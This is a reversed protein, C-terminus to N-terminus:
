RSVAAWVRPSSMLASLQSQTLTGKKRMGRMRQLFRFESSQNKRSNVVPGAALAADLRRVAEVIAEPRNWVPGTWGPWNTLSELAAAREPSMDGRAKDARMNILFRYDRGKRGQISGNLLAEQLAAVAAAFKSDDGLDWSWGLPVLMELKALRDPTLIGSRYCERQRACWKGEPTTRPPTRGYERLHAEVARLMREEDTRLIEAVEARIQQESATGGNMIRVFREVGNVTLAELRGRVDPDAVFWHTSNCGNLRSANRRSIAARMEAELAARDQDPINVVGREVLLELAGVDSIEVGVKAHEAALAAILATPTAGTSALTNLRQDIAFQRDPGVAANSREKEGTVQDRVDAPLAFNWPCTFHHGYCLCKLRLALRAIAGTVLPRDDALVGVEFLCLYSRDPSPHGARKARLARGLRQTILQFSGPVSPMFVQACDPWDAGEDMTRIAVVVDIREAKSGLRAYQNGIGKEESALTVGDNSGLNVVVADPYREALRRGLEYAFGKADGIVRGDPLTMRQEPRVTAPVIMLTPLQRASYEGVYAGLIAEVTGFQDDGRADMEDRQTASVAEYFMFDVDVDPCMGAAHHQSLTRRVQAFRHGFAAPLLPHGDSRFDTATFAYLPVDADCAREILTGLENAQEDLDDPEFANGSHHAEDVLITLRRKADDTLRAWAGFFAQYSCVVVAPDGNLAAAVLKIKGLGAPWVVSGQPVTAVTEGTAPDVAVFDATATHKAFGHAIVNKPVLIVTSCGTALRSGAIALMTVSKGSGTPQVVLVYPDTRRVIDLQYPRLNVVAGAAASAVAPHKSGRSLVNQFLQRM